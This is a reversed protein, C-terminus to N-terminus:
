SLSFALTEFRHHFVVAIHLSFSHDLRADQYPKGEGPGVDVGYHEVDSSSVTNAHDDGLM